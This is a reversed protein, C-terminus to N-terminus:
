TELANISALEKIFGLLDAEAQEPPVDFEDLIGRKVDELSNSGNLHDWIFAGLENLNYIADMDGTSDRIPVLVTEDQIKRYVFDENRKYQKQLDKMEGVRGM